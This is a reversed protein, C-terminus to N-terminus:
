LALSLSICCNGYKSLILFGKNTSKNQFVDVCKTYNEAMTSVLLQDTILKHKEASDIKKNKKFLPISISLKEFISNM